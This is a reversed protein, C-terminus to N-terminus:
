RLTGYQEEAGHVLNDQRYLPTRLTSFLRPSDVFDVIRIFDAPESGVKLFFHLGAAPRLSANAQM